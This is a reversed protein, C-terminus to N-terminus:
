PPGEIIPEGKKEKESGWLTVHELGISTDGTLQKRALLILDYVSRADKANQLRKALERALEAPLWLSAQLSLKNLLIRQDRQMVEGRPTKMYEALLDAVLAIKDHQQQQRQFLEFQKKYEFEISARIRAELWSRGLVGVLITGGGGALAATIITELM